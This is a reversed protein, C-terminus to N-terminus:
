KQPCSLLVQVAILPTLKWVTKDFNRKESFLTTIVNIDKNTKSYIIISNYARLM